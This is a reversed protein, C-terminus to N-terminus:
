KNKILPDAIEVEIKDKDEIIDINPISDDLDLPKGNVVLEFEEDAIEVQEPLSNILKTTQDEEIAKIVDEQSIEHENYLKIYDRTLGKEKLEEVVLNYSTLFIKKSEEDVGSINLLANVDNYLAIASQINAENIPHGEMIVKAETKSIMEEETLNDKKLYATKQLPSLDNLTGKGFLNALNEKVSQPQLSLMKERLKIHESVKYLDRELSDSHKYVIQSYLREPIGWKKCLTHISTELEDEKKADSSFLTNFYSRANYLEFARRAALMLTIFNKSDFQLKNVDNIAHSVEKIRQKLRTVNMTKIKADEAKVNRYLLDDKIGMDELM